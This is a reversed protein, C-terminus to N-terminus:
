GAIGPGEPGRGGTPIPPTSFFRIDPIRAVAAEYGVEVLRSTAMFPRLLFSSPPRASSWIRRRRPSARTIAPWAHDGDHGHPPHRPRSSRGERHGLNVAIAVKPDFEGRLTEVPLYEVLGGDSYLTGDQEVPEFVNPISSSMMAAQAVRGKRFVVKEGLLLDTAVVALPIRLEEFTLDGLLETLFREIGANNLLGLRPWTIRALDKWRLAAAVGKLENVTVGAAYIAGVLAGGSTGAICDVGIGAEDLAALVGIHAVSKATGGSLALGVLPRSSSNM